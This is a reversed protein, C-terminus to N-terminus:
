EYEWKHLWPDGTQQQFARLSHCFADVRDAYDPLAALHPTRIGPNGYVPTDRGHDDSVMLVLNPRKDAQM